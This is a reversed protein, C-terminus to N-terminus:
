IFLSSVSEGVHIRRIAEGLLDAVSLVRLKAISKRAALPVTDTVVIERIPSDEIKQLAGGSFLGHTAGVYV